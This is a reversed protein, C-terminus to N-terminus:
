SSHLHSQAAGHPISLIGRLPKSPAIIVQTGGGSDMDFIAPAGAIETGPLPLVKLVVSDALRIPPHTELETFSGTEFVLHLFISSSAPHQARVEVSLM